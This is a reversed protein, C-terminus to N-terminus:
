SLNYNTSSKLGCLMYLEEICSSKYEMYKDIDNLATDLDFPDCHLFGYFTDPYLNQLQVLYEPNQGLRHPTMAKEIGAEKMDEVLYAVNWEEIAKPKDKRKSISGKTYLYSEKWDGFPPRMRWDFAKIM